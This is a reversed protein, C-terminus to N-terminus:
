MTSRRSLCYGRTGLGTDGGPGGPLKDELPGKVTCDRWLVAAFALVREDALVREQVSM